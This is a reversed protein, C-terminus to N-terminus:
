DNFMAEWESVHDELTRRITSHSLSFATGMDRLSPRTPRDQYTEVIRAWLVDRARTAPTFPWEGGRRLAPPIGPTPHRPTRWHILEGSERLELGIEPWRRWGSWGFPRGGGEHTMHAEIIVAVGFEARLEDLFTALAKSDEEDNPNGGAMKYLPGICLLEATTRRLRERLWQRDEEDGTLDLGEPRSYVFLRRRELRDGAKLRLPRLRRRLENESNELDVLVTRVAELDDGGFPHCAHAAQTCIQQLLLSKGAGERGTLLLRDTREIAGDILWDYREDDEGHLLDDIDPEVVLETTAPVEAVGPDIGNREQFPGRPAGNTRQPTYFETRGELAKDITRLGYSERDWKQRM